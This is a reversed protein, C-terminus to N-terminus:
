EGQIDGELLMKRAADEFKSTGLAKEVEDNSAKQGGGFSTFFQDLAVVDKIHMGNGGAKRYEAAKGKYTALEIKPDKWRVLTLESDDTNENLIQSRTQFNTM